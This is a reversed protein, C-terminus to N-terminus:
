LGAEALEAENPIKDAPEAETKQQAEIELRRARFIMSAIEQDGRTKIYKSVAKSYDQLREITDIEACKKRISEADLPKPAPKQQPKRQPARNQPAKTEIEKDDDCAVSEAMQVTYRRAYTLASGYAQAANSGKMEPVVIRAGQQWEKTGEDYWEIYEGHDTYKTRMKPINIGAKAIDSLSSYNYGYASSTNKVINAKQETEKM